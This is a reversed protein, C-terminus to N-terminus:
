DFLNSTKLDNPAPAISSEENRARSFSYWTNKFRDKLQKLEKIEHKTVKGKPLTKEFFDTLQADLTFFRTDEPKQVEEEFDFTELVELESPDFVLSDAM